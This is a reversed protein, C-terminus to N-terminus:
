KIGKKQIFAEIQQPQMGKSALHQRVRDAAGGSPQAPVASPLAGMQEYNFPSANYNQRLTDIQMQQLQAGRQNIADLKQMAAALAKPDNKSKIVENMARIADGETQVGKNLRLSDNRIKELDTELNQFNISNPSSMGAFNRAGSILNEIPGVDLDGTQLQQQIAQSKQSITQAANLADLAEQQLKLAGVPLPKNSYSQTIEGTDPDILVSGSGSRMAALERKLAAEKEWQADERAYGAQQSQAARQRDSEEMMLKFAMESTRPDQALIGAAAQPDGWQSLADAMRQQLAREDEEEKLRSQGEFYGGAATQLGRALHELPSQKVVIGSVMENGKPQGAKQLSEALTKLREAERRPARTNQQPAFFDVM